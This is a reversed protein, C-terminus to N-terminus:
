RPESPFQLSAIPDQVRLLDVLLDEVTRPNTDEFVSRSREIPDGGVLRGSPCGAVTGSWSRRSENPNSLSGCAGREVDSISQRKQVGKKVSRM